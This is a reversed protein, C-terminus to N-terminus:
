DVVWGESILKDIDAKDAKEIDKVDLEYVCSEIFRIDIDDEKANPGSWEVLVGLRPFLGPKMNRSNKITQYPWNPWFGPHKMFQEDDGPQTGDPRREQKKSM